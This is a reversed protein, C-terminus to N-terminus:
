DLISECLVCKADQGILLSILHNILILFEIHDEDYFFSEMQCSASM